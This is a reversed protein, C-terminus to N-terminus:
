YAPVTSPTLALEQNNFPTLHGPTGYPTLTSSIPPNSLYLLCFPLVWPPLAHPLHFFSDHTCHPIQAVSPIFPWTVSFPLVPPPAPKLLSHTGQPLTGPHIFPCTPTPHITWDWSHVPGPWSLGLSKATSHTNPSSQFHPFSTPLSRFPKDVPTYPTTKNNVWEERTKTIQTSRLLVLREMESHRETQKPQNSAKNHNM